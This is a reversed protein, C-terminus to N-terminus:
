DYFHKSRDIAQQAPIVPGRARIMRVSINPFWGGLNLSFLNSIASRNNNQNNNQNPNAHANNNFETRCIPCNKSGSEILQMICFKHFCHNCPLKRAQQMQEKCIACEEEESFENERQPQAVGFYVVPYDNNLNQLFSMFKRYKEVEQVITVAQRLMTHVLYVQSPIFNIVTGQQLLLIIHLIFELSLKLISLVFNLHIKTIIQSDTTMQSM